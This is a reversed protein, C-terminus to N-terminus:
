HTSAAMARQEDEQQKQDFAASVGLVISVEAESLEQIAEWPVDYRLLQIVM